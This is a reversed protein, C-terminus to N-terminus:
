NDTKGALRTLGADVGPLDYRNRLLPIPGM